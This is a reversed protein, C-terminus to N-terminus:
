GRSRGSGLAYCVGQNDVNKAHLSPRQRKLTISEDDVAGRRPGWRVSQEGLLHSCGWYAGSGTWSVGHAWRLCVMGLFFGTEVVGPIALIDSNLAKVDGTLSGFDVDLIFNGNDVVVRLNCAHGTRTGDSDLRGTVLPGMKAKAMRM